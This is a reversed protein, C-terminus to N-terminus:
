IMNFSVIDVTLPSEPGVLPGGAQSFELIPDMPSESGLMSEPPYMAHSVTHIHFLSAM